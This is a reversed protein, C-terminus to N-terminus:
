NTTSWGTESEDYLIRCAEEAGIRIADPLNKIKVRV